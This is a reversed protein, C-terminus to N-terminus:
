AAEKSTNHSALAMISHESLQARPLEGTIRGESMVLARDAIGLVEELESSVFLIALGQAALDFLISYIERRAGVDVGRTPEDLLLVSPSTALCRGLVVKQQNGGSLDGVRQEPGTCRVKLKEIFTTTLSTEKKQDRLITGSLTKLVSLITNERITSTAIIGQEKRSEPLLALGVSCAREPSEISINSGNVSITGAVPPSIGFISELFETRGSGILGAIGVIEGRRISVSCPTHNESARFNELELVVEGTPRPTYGYIDKLERGVILKIITDRQLQAASLEGSNRGDRLAVVRDSIRQVEPLRHSVYLVSVGDSKLKLILSLLLEGEKESLSSTPEDFIVIRADFALARAIEVMQRQAASLTSAIRRPDLDLDLRVLARRAIDHMTRKCLAGWRTSERGLLINETISLNEAINLEQHVMGVGHEIADRPHTFTIPMGDLHLVGHNPALIGAVIKALTSKGAGNEGIISVIEGHQLTLSVDHLVTNTGFSKTIGTAELLPAM